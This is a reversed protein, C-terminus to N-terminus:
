LHLAPYPGTWNRPSRPPEGRCAGRGAPCVSALSRCTRTGSGIRRTCGPIRRSYGATSVNNETNSHLGAVPDRLAIVSTIFTSLNARGAGGRGAGDRGVGPRVQVGPRAAAGGVGAGGHLALLATEAGVIDVAVWSPTWLVTTRQVLGPGLIRTTGLILWTGLIYGTGLVRSSGLVSCTGGVRGSRRRLLWCARGRGRWAIPCLLLAACGCGDGAAPGGGAWGGGGGEAWLLLKLRLQYSLQPVAQLRHLHRAQRHQAEGEADEEGAEEADCDDTADSLALHSEPLVGLKRFKNLNRIQVSPPAQCM